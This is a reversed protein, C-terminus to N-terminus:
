LILIMKNLIKQLRSKECLVNHVNEWLKSYNSFLIKFFHM